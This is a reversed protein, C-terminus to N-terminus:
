RLTEMHHGNGPAPEAPASPTFGVFEHLKAFAAEKTPQAIFVSATRDDTVIRAFWPWRDNISPNYVVEGVLHMGTFVGGVVEPALQVAVAAVAGVAFARRTIM